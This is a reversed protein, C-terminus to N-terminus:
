RATRNLVKRTILKVSRFRIVVEGKPYFVWRYEYDDGFRDIEEYIIEFVDKNKKSFILIPDTVSEKLLKLVTPDISAQSFELFADFYGVQLDGCRLRLILKSLIINFDVNLVWGDHPNFSLLQKVSPSLELNELHRLYDKRIKECAEDDLEGNLYEQTYFKM